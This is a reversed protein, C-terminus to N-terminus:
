QQPLPQVTPVPGASGPQPAVVTGPLLPAVTPVPTTTSGASAPLGGTADVGSTAGPTKASFASAGPGSPGSQSSTQGPAGPTTSSAGPPPPPFTKPQPLIEERVPAPTGITSAKARLMQAQQKIAEPPVFAALAMPKQIYRIDRITVPILNETIFDLPFYAWWPSTIKEDVTLREYGDADFVFRYTGYYAFPLDVPAPGIYRDNVYVIAGPPATEFVFRRDVCGSLGAALILILAAGLSPTSQRM